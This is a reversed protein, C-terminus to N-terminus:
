LSFDQRFPITVTYSGGQNAMRNLPGDIVWKKSSADGPAQWNFYDTGESADMATMLTGYDDATMKSWTISWKDVKHNIGDKARQEYGNGYRVVKVRYESSAVSTQSIKNTLPM